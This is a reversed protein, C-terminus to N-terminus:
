FFMNVAGSGTLRPHQEKPSKYKGDNMAENILTVLAENTVKKLKDQFLCLLFTLKGVFNGDDDKCEYNPEYDACASLTLWDEKVNDPSRGKFESVVSAPFEFKKEVGRVHEEGQESRSKDGKGRTSGRSHCADVIVLIHGSEGIKNKVKSLLLAVEDDILHKEGKDHRCYEMYADYPIWSEDYRDDKNTLAEDGDLDYVRQGHGSFHIYVLDGPRCRAALAGFADVIGQKTAEKGVLFVTDSYDSTNLLREIYKLDNSASIAGWSLDKQETVCIVLARKELAFGPLQCVFLLLILIIRHM